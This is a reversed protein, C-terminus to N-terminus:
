REARIDPLDSRGQRRRAFNDPKSFLLDLLRKVASQKGAKWVRKKRGRLVPLRVTEDSEEGRLAIVGVIKDGPLVVKEVTLGSSVILAYSIQPFLLIAVAFLLILLKKM